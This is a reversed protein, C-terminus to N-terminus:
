QSKRKTELDADLTTYKTWSGFTNSPSVRGNLGLGPSWMTRMEFHLHTSTMRANGTNGVYGIVTGVEGEKVLPISSLHANFYIYGSNLSKYSVWYGYDKHFGSRIDRFPAIAYVPDGIIAELDWGQHARSNGSRVMGFTNSLSNGRIHMVDLPYAVGVAVTSLLLLEIM